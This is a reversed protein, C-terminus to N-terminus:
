EMYEIVPVIGQTELILLFYDFLDEEWKDRIEKDAGNEHLWEQFLENAEEMSIFKLEVPKNM